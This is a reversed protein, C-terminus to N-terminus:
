YGAMFVANAFLLKGNQWFLRFLVDENIVIISGDGINKQGMVIGDHLQNKLTSGTFGETLSSSRLVGVNWGDKIPEYLRDDLKLTYYFNPYGYALPHTNDLTVKFIAGPTTTLLSHREDDGYAKLTDVRKDSSTSDQKLKFGAWEYSALKAAGNELAIIKGGNSVFDKLRASTEDKFNDYSGDPIILTSYNSLHYRNIDKVDLQSLPYQLENDFFSWLEGAAQASVTNGTLMAVRPAQIFKVSSSGFDAGADMFGTEVSVPQVNYLKCAANVTNNWTNTNSGKLVILAGRNYAKGKYTFPKDSARVKVNKNLLYALVEASNLSNYPIIIGYSSNTISISDAAPLPNLTLGEKVSWANVGYAYPISWATIDYTVSDNLKSQPEFLVKVLSGKSQLTSIAIQYGENTFPQTKNTFYNYGSFNNNTTIGYQIGNVDMLRKVENIKNFSSSTLVYTKDAVGVGNKNNDFYKKFEAVLKAANASSTEVTSMSTTFHHLARDHLTLTDGNRTNVGLGAGIGGQEFTMGIAGNYTPYTDGYSPYFLDFIEKTFYLWGNADFYKANNRGIM